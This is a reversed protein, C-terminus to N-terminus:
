LSVTPTLVTRSRYPVTMFSPADLPMKIVVLPKPFADNSNASPFGSSSKLPLWRSWKSASAPVWALISIILSAGNQPIYSFLWHAMRNALPVYQSEGEVLYLVLTDTNLISEGFMEESANKIGDVRMSFVSSIPIIHFPIKGLSYSVSAYSVAKEYETKTDCWCLDCFILHENSHRCIQRRHIIPLVGLSVIGLPCVPTQQICRFRDISIERCPSLEQELKCM